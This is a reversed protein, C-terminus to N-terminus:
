RQEGALRKWLNRMKQRTRFAKVKVLTVSWGTLRSIEKVTREELHLLTIVLREDPRLRVLMKELLERAAVTQDKSLDDTTCLLRRIVAEEEERLDSMRLEPRVREHKLHNLCTNVAIRSVWHELPVTGSFQDLHAFIKVYIAQVLDEEATRRPLRYRVSKIITPYLRDVLVTAATEDGARVRAVWALDDLEAEAEAAEAQPRQALDPCPSPTISRSVRPEAPPRLSLPLRPAISLATM